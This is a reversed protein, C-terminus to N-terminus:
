PEVAYGSFMNSAEGNSVMGIFQLRPAVASVNRTKLLQEEFEASAPLDLDLPALENSGNYGQRQVQLAGHTSDLVFELVLTKLGDIYAESFLIAVVGIAITIGTLLSRRRNRTVSRLAMRSFPYSSSM